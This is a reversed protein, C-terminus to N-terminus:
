GEISDNGGGGERKGSIPERFGGKGGDSARWGKEDRRKRGRGVVSSGKKGYFTV